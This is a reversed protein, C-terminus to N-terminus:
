YLDHLESKLERTMLDLLAKRVPKKCFLIEYVAQAIPM